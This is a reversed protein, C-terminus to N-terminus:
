LNLKGSKYYRKITGVVLGNIYPTQSEFEGSEYYEKKIGNKKGNSYQVEYWKKGSMYYGREIGLPKGMTYVVLRFYRPNSDKPIVHLSLSALWGKINSDYRYGLYEVWKGEKLGNVMKNEAEAKNTFGSDIPQQCSAVFSIFLSFILILLIRMSKFQVM